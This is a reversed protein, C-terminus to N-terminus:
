KDKEKKAMAATKAMMDVKKADEDVKSKANLQEQKAKEQEEKLIELRKVLDDRETESKTFKFAHNVAEKTDFLNATFSKIAQDLRTNFDDADLDPFVVDVKLDDYLGPEKGDMIDYYRVILKVVEQITKTWASIKTNRVLHTSQERKFLSSGTTNSGVKDSEVNGSSPAIFLLTLLHRLQWEFAEQLHKIGSLDPIDRNFMAAISKGDVNSLGGALEIVKVGLDKPKKVQAQGTNQDVEYGMLDESMFLIPQTGRIQAIFRSYIEDAIQFGDVLGEYDSGGIQMDYFEKSMMNNKFWVALLPGRENESSFELNDPMEIGHEKAQATIDKEDLFLYYKNGKSSRECVIVYERDNKNIFDVTEMATIRGFKSKYDIRPGEYVELIPHESISKDFNSVIQITGSWSALTASRKLFDQFNNDKLTEQLRKDLEENDNIKITIPSSFLLNVMMTTIFSPIPAHVKQIDEKEETWEYWVNRSSLSMEVPEKRWLSYFQMLYNINGRFWFEYEKERYLLQYGKLYKATTLNYLYKKTNQSRSITSVGDGSSGKFLMEIDSKLGM